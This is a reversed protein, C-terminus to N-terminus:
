LQRLSWTAQELHTTAVFSTRGGTQGGRAVVHDADVGFSGFPGEVPTHRQFLEVIGPGEVRNDRAARQNEIGLSRANRSRNSSGAAGRM